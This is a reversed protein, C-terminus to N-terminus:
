VSVGRGDPFLLTVPMMHTSESDTLIAVEPVPLCLTNSKLVTNLELM